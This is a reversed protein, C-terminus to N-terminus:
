IEKKDVEIAKENSAEATESQFYYKEGSKHAYIASWPTRTTHHQVKAKTAM